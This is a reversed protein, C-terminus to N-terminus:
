RMCMRTSAFKARCILKRSTQTSEAFSGLFANHKRKKLVLLINKLKILDMDAIDDFQDRGKMYNYSSRESVLKLLSDSLEVTIM